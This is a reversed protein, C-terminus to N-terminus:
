YPISVNVFTKTAAERMKTNLRSRMIDEPSLYGFIHALEDTRLSDM